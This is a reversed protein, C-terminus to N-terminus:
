SGQGGTRRHRRRIPDLALSWRAGNVYLELEFPTCLEELMNDIDELDSLPQRWREQQKLAISATVLSRIILHRKRGETLAAM